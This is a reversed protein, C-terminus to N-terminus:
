QKKAIFRLSLPVGIFVACIDIMSAHNAIFVYPRQRHRHCALVVNLKVGPAGLVTRPWVRALAMVAEGTRDFIPTLAAMVSGLLTAVVFTILSLAARIM